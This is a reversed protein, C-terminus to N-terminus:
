ERGGTLEKMEMPNNKVYQKLKEQRITFASSVADCSECAYKPLKKPVYGNMFRKEYEELPEDKIGHGSVKRSEEDWWIAKAWLEKNTKWLAYLSGISQKQCFYCGLRNYNKYLPNMLGKKNLYEACDDETWGWEVLPYRILSDDSCRNDEDSAIGVCIIKAEVMYKQLPKIKSERSYWCPYAYLPFGRTEGKNTGRSVKGYFWDNWLNDKPQLKTIPRGIHAEIQDIYEYLEPFEFGTDAFVIEDIHEGLEIMRLLMATSDKGGSFSVYVKERKSNIAKIEFAMQNCKAEKM